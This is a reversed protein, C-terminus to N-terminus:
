KEETIVLELKTQIKTTLDKALNARKLFLLAFCTDTMPNSGFYGGASWAGDKRQSDLLVEVGWHYWDKDNIKPLGYLMGVREVTWLFYLNVPSRGKAGAPKGLPREIFRSLAVLAKQIDKDQIGQAAMAEIKMGVTLGHTVALGLLGAGTMAAVGNPGGAGGGRVYHYGFTGDNNQSTRFRQVILGM